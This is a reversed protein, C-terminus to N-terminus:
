QSPVSSFKVKASHHLWVMTCRMKLSIGVKLRKKKCFISSLHFLFTRNTTNPRRHLCSDLSVMLYKLSKLVAETLTFCRVFSTRVRRSNSGCAAPDYVRSANSPCQMCLVAAARFGRRRSKLSQLCITLSTSAFFILSSRATSASTTSWGNTDSRGM